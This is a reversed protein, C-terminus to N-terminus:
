VAGSGFALEQEALLWMEDACGDPCGREEWLQYARLAIDEHRPPEPVHLPSEDVENQEIGERDPVPTAM